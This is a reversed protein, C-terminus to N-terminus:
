CALVYPYRIERLKFGFDFQSENDPSYVADTMVTMDRMTQEVDDIVSDSASTDRWSFVVYRVARKEIHTKVPPCTFLRDLTNYLQARAKVRKSTVYATTSCTMEIFYSSDEGELLYDCVEGLEEKVYGFVQEVNVISVSKDSKVRLQERSEPSESCVFKCGVCAKTDLLSFDGVEEREEILLVVGEVKPFTRYFQSEFLEKLM